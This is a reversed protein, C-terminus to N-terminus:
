PETRETQNSTRYRGAAGVYRGGGPWRKSVAQQTVGLAEAIQRDTHGSSRMGYVATTELRAIENKLNAILYFGEPEWETPDNGLARIM